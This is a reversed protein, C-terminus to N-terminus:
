LGPQISCSMLMITSAMNSEKASTTAFPLFAPTSGFSIAEM